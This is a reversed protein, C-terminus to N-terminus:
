SRSPKSQRAHKAGRAKHLANTVDGESRVLWEELKDIWERAKRDHLTVSPLEAERCRNALMRVRGCIDLLRLAVQDLRDPDYAERTM